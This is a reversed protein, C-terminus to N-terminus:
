KIKISLIGVDEAVPQWALTNNHKLLNSAV